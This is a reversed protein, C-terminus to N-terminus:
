LRTAGPFRGQPPAVGAYEGAIRVAERFSQADRKLLWNFVDGGELCAFCYWHWEPSPWVGLSPTDDQHWPCRGLLGSRGSYWKLRTEPHREVIFEALDIRRKIDEVYEGTFGTDARRYLGEIRQRKNQEADLLSIREAYIERWCEPPIMTDGLQRPENEAWALQRGCHERETQIEEDALYRLEKLWLLQLAQSRAEDMSMTSFRPPM